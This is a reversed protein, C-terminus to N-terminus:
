ESMTTRRAWCPPRSDRRLTNLSEFTAAHPTEATACSTPREAEEGLVERPSQFKFSSASRRSRWMPSGTGGRWRQTPESWVEEYLRERDYHAVVYSSPAPAAPMESRCRGDLTIGLESLRRECSAVHQRMQPVRLLERVADQGNERSLLMGILEATVEPETRYLIRRTKHLTSLEPTWKAGYRSSCRSPKEGGPYRAAPAVDEAGYEDSAASTRGGWTNSASTSHVQVATPRTTRIRESNSFTPWSTM